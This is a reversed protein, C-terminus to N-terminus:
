APTLQLTDDRRREILIALVDLFVGRQFPTELGGLDLRRRDIFRNQNQFTQTGFILRM